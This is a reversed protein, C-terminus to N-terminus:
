KEILWRTANDNSIYGNSINLRNNGNYLRGNGAANRIYFVNPSPTEQVQWLTGPMNSETCLFGNSECLYAHTWRNRIYFNSSGTVPLIEWDASWWGNEIGTCVLNGPQNNLYNNTDFNRIRVYSVSEAAPPQNNEILAGTQNAVEPSFTVTVKPKENLPVIIPYTKFVTEGPRIWYGIDAMKKVQIIKDTGCEKEDVMAEIRCVQLEMSAMKNTLRAGTANLCKFLAVSNNIPGAHGAFSLNRYMIRAETTTNTLWFKIKFRSFDGNKGVQKESESEITYGAKLGNATVPTSDTVDLVQQASLSKVAVLFITSFTLLLIRIYSM